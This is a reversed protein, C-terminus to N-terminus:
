AADFGDAIDALQELAEYGHQSVYQPKTLLGEITARAPSLLTGARPDGWARYLTEMTIAVFASHYAKDYGRPLKRLASVVLADPEALEPEGALFIRHVMDDLFICQHVYEHAILAAFDALPAAPDLGIWIVGVVSTRSGGEYKDLHALLFKGVVVNLAAHLEADTDSLLMMAGAVKDAMAEQQAQPLRWDAPLTAVAMLERLAALDGPHPNSECYTAADGAHRDIAVPQLKELAGQLSRRPSYAGTRAVASVMATNGIVAGMRVLPHWRPTQTHFERNIDNM